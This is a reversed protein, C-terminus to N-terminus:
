KLSLWISIAEWEEERVAFNTRRPTSFIKLSWLAPDCQLFEKSLPEDLLVKDYEVLVRAIPQRGDRKTIWYSLGTASDPMISPDTLVKGTAYIGAGKGCIWILVRDGVQVEKAHQRLNWYEKKELQLSEHIQYKSPNAQFLWTRL